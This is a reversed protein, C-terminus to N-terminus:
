NKRFERLVSTSNIKPQYKYELSPARIEDKVDQIVDTLEVKRRAEIKELEKRQKVSTFTPNDVSFESKVYSPIAVSLSDIRKQVRENHKAVQERVAERRQQKLEALTAATVDVKSLPHEPYTKTLVL